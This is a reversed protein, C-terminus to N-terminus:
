LSMTCLELCQKLDPMTESYCACTTQQATTQHPLLYYPKKPETSLTSDAGLRRHSRPLTCKGLCKQHPPTLALVARSKRTHIHTHTHTHTLFTVQASLLCAMTIYPRANCMFLKHVYVDQSMDVTKRTRRSAKEERKKLFFM